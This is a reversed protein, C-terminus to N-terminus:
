SQMLQLAREKATDYDGSVLLDLVDSDLIERFARASETYNLHHEIVECRIEGLLRVFEGYEPGYRDELEERIRRSLSPSKGATSISITLDGRRVVAPAFFTCLVPDDVVNVLIGRQQAEEFIEKNVTQNNTAAIILFAKDLYRSEYNAAIHEILNGAALEQLKSTLEPSVVLVDAKAQLLVVVKREAITGGGIVVCRRSEINLSVPYSSM